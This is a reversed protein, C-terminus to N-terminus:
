WQAALRQQAADVDLGDRVGMRQIMLQESASILLVDSVVGVGGVGVLVGM